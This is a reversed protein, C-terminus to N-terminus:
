KSLSSLLDTYTDTEEASLEDVKVDNGYTFRYLMNLNVSLDNVKPNSGKAMTVYPSILSSDADQPLTYNNLGVNVHIGLTRFGQSDFVLGTSIDDIKLATFFADEEAQASSSLESSSSSGDATRNNKNENIRNRMIDKDIKYSIGYSGDDYSYFSYGKSSSEDTKGMEEAFENFAEKYIGSPDLESTDIDANFAQGFQELTSLSLFYKHNDNESTLGIESKLYDILNAITKNSFDFYFGKTSDFYSKVEASGDLPTHTEQNKGDDGTKSTYSINANGSIDFSSKVTSNEKRASFNVNFSNLAISGAATTTRKSSSVAFDPLSDYSINFSSSFSANDLVLGFGTINSATATKVEDAAKKVAAKEVPKGGSPLDAANAEKNNNGCGSLLLAPIVAATLLSKKKMM